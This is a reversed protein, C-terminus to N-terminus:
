WVGPLLRYKVRQTYEAYGELEKKLASDEMCTRAAFLVMIVGAPVLAWLSGLMVAYSPSGIIGALYGPHRIISYPGSDVVRHGRDKQIRVVSSFFRNERLAMLGGATTLVSVAYGAAYLWSPLLGSWGYRGGDLCGVVFVSFFVPSYLYGLWVRDWKKVGPGPKMRERMLDPDRYFIWLAIVASFLNVGSFVWGQWYDIRGALAFVIVAMVLVKILGKVALGKM